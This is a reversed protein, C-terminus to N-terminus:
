FCQVKFIDRHLSLKNKDFHQIFIRKKRIKYQSYKHNYIM